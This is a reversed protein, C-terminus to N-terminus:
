VVLLVAVVFGSPTSILPSRSAAGCGIGVGGEDRLPSRSAGPARRHIAILWWDWVPSANMTVQMLRVMSFGEPAVELARAVRPIAQGKSTLPLQGSKAMLCHRV